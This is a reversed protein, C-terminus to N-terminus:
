LQWWRRNDPGLPLGNYQAFNGAILIVRLVITTGTEAQTTVFICAGKVFEPAVTACM